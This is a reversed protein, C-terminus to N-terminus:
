KTKIEISRPKKADPIENELSVTLVGDKLKAGKVVVTDALSWSRRFKREAIGKHIFNDPEGDVDEQLQNGTITLTGDEVTVDLHKEKFGALALQVEFKYDDIKKINFPPFNNNVPEFDKQLLDFVRNFGIFHREIQPFTHVFNGWNATTLTVM